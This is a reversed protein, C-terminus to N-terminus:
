NMETRPKRNLFCCCSCYNYRTNRLFSLAPLSLFCFLLFLASFLVFVAILWPATMFRSCNRAASFFPMSGNRLSVWPVTVSSAYMIGLSSSCRTHLRACACQSSCARVCAHVHCFFFFCGCVCGRVVRKGQVQQNAPWLIFVRWGAISGKLKCSPEGPGITQGCCLVLM